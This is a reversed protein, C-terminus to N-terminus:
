ESKDGLSTHILYFELDNHVLLTDWNVFPSKLNHYIPESDIGQLDLGRSSSFIGDLIIPCEGGYTNISVPTDCHHIDLTEVQIDPKSDNSLNHLNFSQLNTPYSINDDQFLPSLYSV